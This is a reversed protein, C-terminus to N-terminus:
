RRQGTLGTYNVCIRQWRQCARRDGADTMYARLSRKGKFINEFFHLNSLEIQVAALSAIQAGEQVFAGKRAGNWVGTTQIQQGFAVPLSDTIPPAKGGFWPSPGAQVLGIKAADVPTDETRHPYVGNPQGGTAVVRITAGPQVGHVALLHETWNSGGPLLRIMRDDATDWGAVWYNGAHMETVDTILIDM